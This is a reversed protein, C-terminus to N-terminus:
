ETRELFIIECWQYWLLHNADNWWFLGSHYIYFRGVGLGTVVCWLALMHMIGTIYHLYNADRPTSHQTDVHLVNCHRWLSRSQTKFWWRRSQKSLRKDLRLDFFVDFGRTVPRQSPFEGTVPSNRVCLALSASFTEMLHRWWWFTTYHSEGHM